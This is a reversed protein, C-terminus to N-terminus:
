QYEISTLSIEAYYYDALVHKIICLSKLSGTFKVEISDNSSKLYNYETGLLSENCVIFNRKCNYCGETGQFIWFRNNYQEDDYFGDVKESTKYFLIGSKQEEIPVEPFNESPVSGLTDSDCGCNPKTDDKNCSSFILITFFFLYSITKKLSNTRDKLHKM